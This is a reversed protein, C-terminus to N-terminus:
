FLFVFSPSSFLFLHKQKRPNHIKSNLATSHSCCTSAELQEKERKNPKTREKAKLKYLNSKSSSVYLSITSILSKNRRNHGMLVNKLPSDHLSAGGFARLGCDQSWTSLPFSGLNDGCDEEVDIYTEGKLM